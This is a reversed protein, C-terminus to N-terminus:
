FKYNGLTSAPVDTSSRGLFYLGGVAAAAVVLATMGIWVWPSTGTRPAVAPEASPREGLGVPAPRDVPLPVAPASPPPEAESAPIAAPVTEAVAPAAPVPPAAEATRSPDPVPVPNDEAVPGTPAGPAPARSASPPRSVDAPSAAQGAGDAPPAPVYSPDLASLRAEVLKHNPANPMQALFERYDAMARKNEGLKRLCEARNFLLAPDKLLEYARTFEPIAPRCKGAASLRSAKKAHRRGEERASAASAQHATGLGLALVVGLALAVRM